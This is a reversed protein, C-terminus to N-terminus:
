AAGHVEMLVKVIEYQFSSIPSPLCKMEKGIMRARKCCAAWMQQMESVTELMDKDLVRTEDQLFSALDTPV